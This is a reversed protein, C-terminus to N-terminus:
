ERRPKREGISLSKRRDTETRSRKEGRERRRRREPIEDTVFVFVWFCGRRKQQLVILSTSLPPRDHDLVDPGRGQWGMETKEVREIKKWIQDFTEKKKERRPVLGVADLWVGSEEVNRKKAPPSM